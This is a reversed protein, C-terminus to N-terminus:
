SVDGELSSTIYEGHLGQKLVEVKRQADSLQQQLTKSLHVGLEFQAIAEELTLQGDELKQVIAELRNLEKDFSVPQKKM